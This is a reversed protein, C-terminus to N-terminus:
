RRRRCAERHRRRNRKKQAQRQFARTGPGGSALSNNPASPTWTPAKEYGGSAAPAHASASASAILATAAAAVSFLKRNM